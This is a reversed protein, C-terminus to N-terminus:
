RLMPPLTLGGCCLHILAILSSASHFGFSRRTITRIKGNLGESRASSLGTAVYAVPRLRAVVREIISGVTAWGIRLMDSLTTKDARQALYAVHQEFEYTFWSQPAAWPVLEGTVGCRPCRPRRITYRLWLRM